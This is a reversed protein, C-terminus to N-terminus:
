NEVNEMAQIGIYSKALKEGERGDVSEDIVEVFYGDECLNSYAFEGIIYALNEPTQGPVSGEDCFHEVFKNITDDCDLYEEKLLGLDSDFLIEKHWTDTPIDM